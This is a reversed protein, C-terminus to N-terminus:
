LLKADLFIIISFPLSNFLVSPRSISIRLIESLDSSPTQFGSRPNQYGPTEGLNFTINNANERKKIAVHEM